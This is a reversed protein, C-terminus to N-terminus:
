WMLAFQQGSNWAVDQRSVWQSRKSAWMGRDRAAQRWPAGVVNNMCKDLPSLKARFRGSHRAGMTLNQQETWWEHNRFNNMLSAGPM